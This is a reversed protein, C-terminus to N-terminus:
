FHNDVYAWNHKLKWDKTRMRQLFIVLIGTGTLAKWFVCWASLINDRSCASFFINNHGTTLVKFYDGLLFVVYWLLHYTLRFYNQKLLWFLQVTIKFVYWNRVSPLPIYYCSISKWSWFSDVTFLTLSYLSIRDRWLPVSFVQPVFQEQGTSVECFKPCSGM